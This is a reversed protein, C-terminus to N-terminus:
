PAGTAPLQPQAPVPPAQLVGPAGPRAPHPTNPRCPIYCRHRCRRASGPRWRACAARDPDRTSTTQLSSVRLTSLGGEPYNTDRDISLSKWGGGAGKVLRKVTAQQKVPGSIVGDGKAGSAIVVCPVISRESVPEGGAAGGEDPSSFTLTFHGSKLVINSM